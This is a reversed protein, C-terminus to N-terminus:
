RRTLRLLLRSPGQFTEAPQWRVEGLRELAGLERSLVVLAEQLEANALHAGACIHRGYGYTYHAPATTRGIDFRIPDPYIRSDHNAAILCAYVKTGAPVRIGNVEAAERAVRMVVTSPPLFRLVENVASEALAPERALREWQGPHESFLYLANALGQRTTETGAMLFGAILRVIEEETLRDGNEDAQLLLSLMDGDGGQTRRNRILPELYRDISRHAEMARAAQAPGGLLVAMWGEATRVFFDTDGAPIGMVACVVPIPYPRCLEAFAECRDKPLAKALIEEMVARMRGRYRAIAQSSLAPATLRRLRAHAAGEMGTLQQGRREVFRRDVAPDHEIAWYSWPVFRADRLMAKIDELQLLVLGDPVQCARTTEARPM